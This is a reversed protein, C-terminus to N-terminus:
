QQMPIVVDFINQLSVDVEPKGQDILSQFLVAVLPQELLPSGLEWDHRDGPFHFTKCIVLISNGPRVNVASARYFNEALQVIHLHLESFSTDRLPM